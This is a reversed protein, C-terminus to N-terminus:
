TFVYTGVEIHTHTNIIFGLGLLHPLYMACGNIINIQVYITFRMCVKPTGTKQSAKIDIGM